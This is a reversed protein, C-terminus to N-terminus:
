APKGFRALTSRYRRRAWWYVAAHVPPFACLLGILWPLPWRVALAGLMLRSTRVALFIAAFIPVITAVPIWSASASIGLPEMLMLFGIFLLWAACAAFFVVQFYRWVRALEDLGEADEAAERRQAEAGARYSDVQARAHTLAEDGGMYRGEQPDFLIGNGVKALTAAGVMQMVLATHSRSAATSFFARDTATAARDRLEAPMEQLDGDDIDPSGIEFYPFPTTREGAPLDVLRPRATWTVTLENGVNMLDADRAFQLPLGEEALAGEWRERLAEPPTFFVMLDFSM